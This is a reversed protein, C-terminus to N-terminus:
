ALPPTRRTRSAGVVRRCPPSSSEAMLARICSSWCPLRLAQLRPPCRPAPLHHCHSRRVVAPSLLLVVILLPHSLALPLLVDDAATTTSSLALVTRACRSLANLTAGDLPASLSSRPPPSPLRRCHWSADHHRNLAAIFVVILCHNPLSSSSPPPSPHCRRLVVLIVSLPCCYLLSSSSFFNCM